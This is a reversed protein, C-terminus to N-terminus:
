LKLFRMERQDLNKRMLLSQSIPLNSQVDDQIPPLQIGDIKDLNKRYCDVVRKRKAIENM